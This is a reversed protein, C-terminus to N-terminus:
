RSLEIIARDDGFTRTEGARLALEPSVALRAVADAQAAGRTQVLALGGPALHAGIVALVTRHVAMGEPGGDIADVPDEPHRDVEATPVYPPDALILPFREGGALAGDVPANRVEVREALGNEAANHRAWRCAEASADVLVVARGTRAAADLGIGGCGACLELIPGAPVAAAREEAWASQAVTWPRPVITGAGSELVTRGFTMPATV